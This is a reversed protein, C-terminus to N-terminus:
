QMWYIDDNVNSWATSAQCDNERAHFPQNDACLAWSGNHFRSQGIGTYANIRVERNPSGYHNKFWCLGPRLNYLREDTGLNDLNYTTWGNYDIEINRGVCSNIENWCVIEGTHIDQGDYDYALCGVQFDEYSILTWDISGDPNLKNFRSEGVVDDHTASVVGTEDIVKGCRDVHDKVADIVEQLAANPAFLHDSQYNNPNNDTSSPVNVSFDSSFDFSPCFTDTGKYTLQITGGLEFEITDGAKLNGLEFKDIQFGYTFALCFAIALSIYLKNM